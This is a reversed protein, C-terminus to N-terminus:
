LLLTIPPMQTTASKERMGTACNLLFLLRVPMENNLEDFAAKICGSLAVLKDEQKTRIRGLAMALTTVLALSCRLNM